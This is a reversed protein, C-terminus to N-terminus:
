IRLRDGTNARTNKTHRPQIILFYGGCQRTDALLQAGKGIDAGVTAFGEGFSDQVTVIEALALQHQNPRIKQAPVGGGVTSINSIGGGAGETQAGLNISIGAPM